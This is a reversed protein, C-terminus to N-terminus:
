PEVVPEVEQAPRVLTYHIIHKYDPYLASEDIPETEFQSGRACVCVCVWPDGQDIVLGGRPQHRCVNSEVIKGM